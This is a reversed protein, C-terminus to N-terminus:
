LFVKDDYAFTQGGTLDATKVVASSRTKGTALVEVAEKFKNMDQTIARTIPQSTKKNELWEWTVVPSTKGVISNYEGMIQTILAIFTRQVPTKVERSNNPNRFFENSKYRNPDIAMGFRLYTDLSPMGEPLPSLLSELSEKGWPILEAKMGQVPKYELTGTKAFGVYLSRMVRLSIANCKRFVELLTNIPCVRAFGYTHLLNRTEATKSNILTKIVPMLLSRVAQTRLIDAWTPDYNAVPLPREVIQSEMKNKLCLRFIEGQDFFRNNRKTPKSSKYPNSALNMAKYSDLTKNSKEGSVAMTKSKFFVDILDNISLKEENSMSVSQCEIIIAAILPELYKVQEESAREGSRPLVYDGYKEFEDREL